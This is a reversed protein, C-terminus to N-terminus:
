SIPYGLSSSNSSHTFNWWLGRFTQVALDTRGNKFHMFLQKPTAILTYYVSFLAKNIFVTNKRIYLMRNRTM